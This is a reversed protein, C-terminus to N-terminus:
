NSNQDLPPITIIETVNDELDPIPVVKIEESSNNLYSEIIKM